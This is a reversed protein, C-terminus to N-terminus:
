FGRGKLPKSLGANVIPMVDSATIFARDSDGGPAPRHQALLYAFYAGALADIRTVPLRPHRIALDSAFACAALACAVPYSPREDASATEQEDM